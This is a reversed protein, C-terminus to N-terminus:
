SRITTTCASQALHAASPIRNVTTAYGALQLPSGVAISYGSANATTYFYVRFTNFAIAAVATITEHGV